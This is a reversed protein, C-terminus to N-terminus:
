SVFGAMRSGERAPSSQCQTCPMRPSRTISAETMGVTRVPLV